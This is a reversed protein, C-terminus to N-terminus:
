QQPLVTMAAVRAARVGLGQVSVVADMPDVAAAGVEVIQQQQAFAMVHRMVRPPELDEGGTRAPKTEHAGVPAVQARGNSARRTSVDPGKFVLVCIDGAPVLLSLDVVAGQNPGYQKSVHRFEVTAQNM